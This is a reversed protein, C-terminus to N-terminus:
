VSSINTDDDTVLNMEQRLSIRELAQEIFCSEPCDKEEEYKSLLEEKASQLIEKVDEPTCLLLKSFIHNAGAKALYMPKQEQCSLVSSDVTPNHHVPQPLLSHRDRKMLRFEISHGVNLQRQELAM